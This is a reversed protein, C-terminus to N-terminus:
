HFRHAIGVFVAAEEADPQVNSHVLQYRAGARVSTRVTIPVTLMLTASGNDTFGNRTFGLEGTTHLYSVMATLTRSPTLRSSWVLDGGTQVTNDPPFLSSVEGFRAGLAENRQRYASVYVNNRVGLLGVLLQARTLLTAQLTFLDVPGALTAPLAYNRVLTDVAEQRQAPDPFRSQFLNDLVRGISSGATLSVVQQPYTSVDRSANFSVVTLPTRHELDVRYSGGFFRHEWNGDLTTRRDPTWHVGFGYVAGKATVVTYDNDEYGGGVSLKLGPAVLADAYARAIRTLMSPQESFRVDTRQYDFHGGLPTPDRALSAKLDNTYTNDIQAATGSGNSTNSAATWTNSDTVDYHLANPLEGRLAPALRYVQATFENSTAVEAATPRAGFPSAFARQVNVGADLFLHRDLADLKADLQVLPLVRNNEGGTRAYLFVPLAITGDVQMHATGARLRAGPTIQTIFDGKRDRNGQDFNVNSSATEEIIIVPELFFGRRPKGEETGEAEPAPPTPPAPLASGMGPAEPTIPLFIYLGM